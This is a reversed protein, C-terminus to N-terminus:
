CMGTQLIPCPLDRADFDWELEEIGMLMRNVVEYSEDRAIESSWEGEPDLENYPVYETPEGRMSSLMAILLYQPESITSIFEPFSYFDAVDYSWENVLEAIGFYDHCTDCFFEKGLKEPLSKRMTHKSCKPCVIRSSINSVNKTTM